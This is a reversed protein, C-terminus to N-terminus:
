SNVAAPEDVGETPQPIRMESFLAPNTTTDPKLRIIQRPIRGEAPGDHTADPKLRVPDYPGAKLGARISSCLRSSTV